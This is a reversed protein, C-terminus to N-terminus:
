KDPTSRAVRFDVVIRTGNEDFYIRAGTKRSFWWLWERNTVRHPMDTVRGAWMKESPEGHILVGAKSHEFFSSLVFVAEANNVELRPATSHLWENWFSATNRPWNIDPLRLFSEPPKGISECGYVAWVTLLWIVVRTNVLSFMQKVHFIVPWNPHSNNTMKMPNLDM